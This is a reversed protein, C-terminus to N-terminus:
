FTHSSDINTSLQTLLRSICLLSSQSSQTLAYIRIGTLRVGVTRMTTPYRVPAWTAATTM